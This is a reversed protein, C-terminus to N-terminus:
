TNTTKRRLRHKKQTERTGGDDEALGENRGEKKEKKAIEKFHISCFDSGVRRGVYIVFGEVGPGRSFEEGLGGSKGGTLIYPLMLVFLRVAFSPYKPSLTISIDRNTGARLAFGHADTIVGVFSLREEEEVGGNKFL